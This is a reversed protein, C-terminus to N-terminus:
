ATLFSSAQSSIKQALRRNRTEVVHSTFWTVVNYFDWMTKIGDQLEKKYLRGFQKAYMKSLELTRLLKAAAAKNFDTQTLQEWSKAHNLFIDKVTAFNLTILDMVQETSTDGVHKVNFVHLEEETRLGNLCVLRYGGLGAGFKTSGDYSNWVEMMLQVKDPVEGFPGDHMGLDAEVEPFKYKAYFLKDNNETYADLRTFKVDSEKLYKEFGAILTKNDVPKYDTSMISIVKNTDANMVAFRTTQQKTLETELREVKIPFDWKRNLKSM